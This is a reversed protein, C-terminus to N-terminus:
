CLLNCSLAKWVYALVFLGVFGDSYLSSYFFFSKGRKPQEVPPDPQGQCATFAAQVKLLLLQWHLEEQSSQFLGPHFPQASEAQSTLAAHGIKLKM